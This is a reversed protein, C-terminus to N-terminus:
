YKGLHLLKLFVTSERPQSRPAAKLSPIRPNQECTIPRSILLQRIPAALSMFQHLKQMAYETITQQASPSWFFTKQPFHLTQQCGVPLLGRSFSWSVGPLRWKEASMSVGQFGGLFASSSTSSTQSERFSNGGHSSESVLLLYHISLPITFIHSFWFKTSVKFYFTLVSSLIM